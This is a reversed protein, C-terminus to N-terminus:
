LMLDLRANDGTQKPMRLMLTDDSQVSEVIDTQQESLSLIWEVMKRTETLNHQPHPLM